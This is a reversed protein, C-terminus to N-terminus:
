KHLDTDKTCSKQLRRINGVEVDVIWGCIFKPIRIGRFSIMSQLRDVAYGRKAENSFEDAFKDLRYILDKLIDQVFETQTHEYVFFVIRPIIISLIFLVIVTGFLLILQEKNYELIMMIDQYLDM